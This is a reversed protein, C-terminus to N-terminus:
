GALLTFLLFLLRVIAAPLLLAGLAALVPHVVVYLILALYAAALAPLPPQVELTRAIAEREGETLQSEDDLLLGHAEARDWVERSLAEDLGPLSSPWRWELVRPRM